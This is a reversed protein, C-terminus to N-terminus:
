RKVHVGGTRKECPVTTEGTISMATQTRREKAKVEYIEGNKPILFLAITDIKSDKFISAM